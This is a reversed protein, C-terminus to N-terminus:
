NSKPVRKLEDKIDNNQSVSIGGLVAAAIVGGTLLLLTPDVAGFQARVANEGAVILVQDRAAPPATRESWLRYVGETQGATIQYVGGKLGTAVFQGDKNSLVRAVENKGQVLVVEAGDIAVGQADVVRGALTGGSTLAVDSIAPAAQAAPAAAFVQVQPMTTGITALTVAVGKLFSLGKM